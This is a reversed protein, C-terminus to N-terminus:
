SRPLTAKDNETLSLNRRGYKELLLAWDISNETTEINNYWAVDDGHNEEGVLQFERALWVGNNIYRMYAPFRTLLHQNTLLTLWLHMEFNEFIVKDLLSRARGNHGSISGLSGGM